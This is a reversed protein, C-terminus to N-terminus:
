FVDGFSGAIMVWRGRYDNWAISGTGSTMSRGTEVDVLAFHAADPHLRGEAIARREETPDELFPAGPRWTCSPALGPGSCTYSEYAAPDQVAHWDDPVRHHPYLYWWARGGEIVRVPHSSRHKRDAPMPAIPRFERAADDFVAVGREVPELDDGVRAWTAVLRETGTPDTILMLSEVWVLPEDM